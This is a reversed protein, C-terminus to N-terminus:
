FTDLIERFLDRFLPVRGSRQLPFRTRPTTSVNRKKIPSHQETVQGSPVLTASLDDGTIDFTTEDQPDPPPRVTQMTLSLPMKATPKFGDRIGVIFGANDVQWVHQGHGDHEDRRSDLMNIEKAREKILPMLEKRHRAIMLMVRRKYHADLAPNPRDYNVVRAHFSQSRVQAADKFRGDRAILKAVEMSQQFDLEVADHIVNRTARWANFLEDLERSQEARKLNFLEQYRAKTAELSENRSREVRGYNSTLCMSLRDKKQSYGSVVQSLNLEDQVLQLDEIDRVIEEAGEFDITEIAQDLRIRAEEITRALDKEGPDTMSQCKLFSLWWGSTLLTRAMAILLRRFLPTQIASVRSLDAM